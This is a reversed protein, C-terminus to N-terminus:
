KGQFFQEDSQASWAAKRVPRGPHAEIVPREPPEQKAGPAEPHKIRPPNPVSKGGPEAMALCKGEADRLWGDEYWGLHKKAYNYVGAKEVFAVPVGAWSYIHIKDEDLFFNAKGKKNYLPYYERRELEKREAM